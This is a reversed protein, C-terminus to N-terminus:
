YGAQPWSIKTMAALNAVPLSTEIPFGLRRAGMAALVLADALDNGTVDTHPYRRVVAALV